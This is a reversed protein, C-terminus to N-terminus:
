KYFDDDRPYSLKSQAVEKSFLYYTIEGRACIEDKSNKIETKIIALNMKHKILKGIVKLKGENTYLPKKYKVKMEHTVGATKLKVFVVWSAIEDMLTAQIGGHLVNHYGQYYELPQWFSIIKEEEEVFVMKLGFKNKPSCGFCNFEGLRTFPNSIKKM